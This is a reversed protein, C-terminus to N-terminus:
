PAYGSGRKIRLLGGSSSIGWVVGGGDAGIKAVAEGPVTGSTAVIEATWNGGISTWLITSSAAGRDLAYLRDAGPAFLPPSTRADNPIASSVYEFTGTAWVHVLGGDAINRVFLAGDPEFALPITASISTDIWRISNQLALPFVFATDATVLGVEGNSLVDIRRPLLAARLLGNDGSMPRPRASEPMAALDALIKTRDEQRIRPLFDFPAFADQGGLALGTGDTAWVRGAGDVALDSVTGQLGSSGEKFWSPSGSELCRGIRGSSGGVWLSGDRDAAIRFVAPDGAQEDWAAFTSASNDAAYSRVEYSGIGGQRVGKMLVLMSGDAARALDIARAGGLPVAEMTALPSVQGSQLQMGQGIGGFPLPKGLAGAEVNGTYFAQLSRFVVNDWVGTNPAFHVSTRAPIATLVFHSQFLTAGGWLIFIIVGGGILLLLLRHTRESITM